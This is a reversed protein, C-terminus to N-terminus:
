EGSGESGVLRQLGGSCHSTSPVRLVGRSCVCVCIHCVSICVCVGVFRHAVRVPFNLMSSCHMYMTTKMTSVIQKYHNKIHREGEKRGMWFMDDGSAEGTCLGSDM